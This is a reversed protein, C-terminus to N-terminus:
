SAQPTPIQAVNSAPGTSDPSIRRWVGDTDRCASLTYVRTKGDVNLSETYARCAGAAGETIPGLVAIAGSNGSHANRWNRRDGDDAVSLTTQVTRYAITRDRHTLAANERKFAASVAKVEPDEGTLIKRGVAEAGTAVNRGFTDAGESLSRGASEADAVIQRGVREAQSLIDGGVKGVTAYCGSLLSVSVLAVPLTRKAM